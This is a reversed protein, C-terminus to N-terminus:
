NKEYTYPPLPAIIHMQDFTYIKTNRETTQTMTGWDLPFRSTNFDLWSRGDLIISDMASSPLLHDLATAAIDVISPYRYQQTKNLPLEPYFLSGPDALSIELSPLAPSSALWWIKREEVSSGSHNLGIGGHDTSSLILWDELPFEPRSKLYALFTTVLQDVNEIARLYKENDPNFGSTHGTFDVQDFHLMLVDPNTRELVEKAKLMCQEDTKATYSKDWGHKPAIRYLAKWGVVIASTLKPNMAKIYAPFCPFKKFNNGSFRNDHVGHKNDWVGTLMSSWGPGSKTKGLHWSTSCFIGHERLSDMTPTNAKVLADVRCGDIGLILVKHKRSDQATLNTSFGLLFVLLSSYFCFNMQLNFSEM